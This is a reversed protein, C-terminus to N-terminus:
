RGDGPRQIVDEDIENFAHKLYLLPGMLRTPLRPLSANSTGSGSVGSVAVFQDLGDIKKGAKVQRAWRQALSAEIEKWPMRIALVALSHNLGIMKDLRNHFFIDTMANSEFFVLFCAVNFIDKPTKVKSM